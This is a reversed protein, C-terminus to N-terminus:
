KSIILQQGVKLEDASLNNWQRIDQVSVNYKRAISYLGEKAQVEHMQVSTSKAIATHEVVPLNPRLNIRQGKKVWASEVMRNYEALQSLQIGNNQSIDALSENSLAVYFDRNGQKAKKELYLWQSEKLLGDERTDNYEQLKSLPIDYATAVALISTGKEAFVARLSNLYTKEKKKFSFTEGIKVPLSQVVGIKEQNRDEAEKVPDIMPQTELTMVNYQQLNYKEINKILIQPYKPNTAYGAKKLGHAWGKYDTPDLTFLFAYRSSNRLFDSHDRYSDEPNNYKRFCEGVADDTHSVWEGTWTSKCKIGFHNNSRKVLDSNGSETELLGQALTISAPIGMRKMERIAIDKYKDIYQEPTLDQATLMTTIFLCVLATSFKKM